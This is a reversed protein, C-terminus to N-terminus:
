FPAMQPQNDPPTTFQVSGGAVTHGFPVSHTQEDAALQARPLADAGADTRESMIPLTAHAASPLHLRGGMQLQEPVANLKLVYVLVLPM